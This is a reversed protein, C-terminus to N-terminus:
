EHLITQAILALISANGDVFENFVFSGRDPEDVRCILLNYTVDIIISISLRTHSIHIDLM